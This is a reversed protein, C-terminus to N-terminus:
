SLHSKVEVIKSSTIDNIASKIRFRRNNLEITREALRVFAEQQEENRNAFYLEDCHDIVDWLEDNILTLEYYENEISDYISDFSKQLSNIEAMIAALKGDNVIRQRKIQLISYKDVLEGTSVEVKM